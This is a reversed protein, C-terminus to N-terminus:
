IREENWIRTLARRSAEELEARTWELVNGDPLRARLRAHAAVSGLPWASLSRDRAAQFLRATREPSVAFVIAPQESFLAPLTEAELTGFDVDLGLDRDRASALMMEVLAVLLGGDSVDHAARVWRGEAAAVALAQLAAERDLDLEPPPGTARQLERAFTSGSLDNRPDGVLVLFDGARRLALGVADTIRALVGACMVIPSPPVAGRASQNYLSV